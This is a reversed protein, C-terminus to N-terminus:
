AVVGTMSEPVSEFDYKGLVAEIPQYMDAPMRDYLCGMATTPEHFPLYSVFRLLDRTGGSVTVENKRWLERIDGFALMACALEGDSVESFQARNLQLIKWEVDPAPFDIYHHSLRSLDAESMPAVGLINGQWDPNGTMYLTFYPNRKIIRGDDQDLACQADGDLIPRFPHHVAPPATNHEDVDIDWVLSMARMIRSLEYITEGDVLSHHGLVDERESTEGLAVREYPKQRLFALHKTLYTKGVGPPGWFMSTHGLKIDVLAKYVEDHQTEAYPVSDPIFVRADTPFQEPEWYDYEVSKENTLSTWSRQGAPEIITPEIIKTM